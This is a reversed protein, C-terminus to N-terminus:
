AKGSEKYFRFTYDQQINAVYVENDRWGVETRRQMYGNGNGDHVLVREYYGFPVDEIDYFDAGDDQHTEKQEEFNASLFAVPKQIGSSVRHLQRKLTSFHMKFCDENEWLFMKNVYVHGSVYPNAAELPILLEGQMWTEVDTDATKSFIDKSVNYFVTKKEKADYVAVRYFTTEEESDSDSVYFSDTDTTYLEGATVAAFEEKTEIIKVM